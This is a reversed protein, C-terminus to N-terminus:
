NGVNHDKRLQDTAPRNVNDPVIDITGAENRFDKNKEIREKCAVLEYPNESYNRQCERDWNPDNPKMCECGALNLLAVLTLLPTIKM